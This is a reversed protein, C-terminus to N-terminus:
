RCRHLNEIGTSIYCYWLRRLNQYVRCVCGVVGIGWGVPDVDYEVDCLLEYVVEVDGGGGRRLVEKRFGWVFPECGGKGDIEVLREMAVNKREL